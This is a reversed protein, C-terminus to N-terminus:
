LMKKLLDNIQQGRYGLSGSQMFGKKINEYGRRPPHLRFVEKIGLENIEHEFEMIAKIFDGCLLGTKEKILNEDIKGNGPLRGWKVILKELTEMDIEGYTIYDKAKQFMGMYSERDDVVVCHNVRTLKLMRLTDKISGRVGVNGRVRIVAM